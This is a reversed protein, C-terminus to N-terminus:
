ARALAGHFVAAPEGVKGGADLPLLRLAGDRGALALHPRGHHEVVALAVAKAASVRAPRQRGPGRTWSRVTADDGATYFREGPGDALAPTREDHMHRGGRDESELEGRVHTTLLKQDAGISLVRLEGREFLLATVGGDHLKADESAVFADKDECEFVALSGNQAGAVLWTGSPDAALATGSAPLPLRQLEGGDKRSLVVLEAGSVVALRDESALALARPPPDLPAKTVPRLAGGRRPGQHVHGDTGAVYVREDDAALAVGGGPLPHQVLKAKDVDLWAM